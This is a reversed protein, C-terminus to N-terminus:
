VVSETDSAFVLFMLFDMEALGRIEELGPAEFLGPPLPQKMCDTAKHQGQIDGKTNKRWYVDKLWLQL